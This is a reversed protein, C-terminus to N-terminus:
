RRGSIQVRLVANAVLLSQPDKLVGRLETDSAVDAEVVGIWGNRDRRKVAYLAADAADVVAQWSLAETMRPNPPFAAFGVSCTKVVHTQDDLVFPKNAVAVRLREAREHAQRRDMGRAVILFEEGGWRVLHDTERFATRLREAIQQLLADGAAHGHEDNVQKFHDIDLLFFILDSESAGILGERQLDHQRRLAISVDADIVQLLFRRNRLGTLPDTLSTEELAASQAKLEQTLEELQATREAVKRQLAAENARLHSTRWQVAAWTMLLLLAGGVIVILGRAAPTQRWAPKVVLPVSLEDAAWIGSRNTARVRLRYEGPELNSYAAVRWDASTPVWDPDFGELRYAYRIRDPETYDLAAFEIHVTRDAPTLSIGDLVREAPRPEGNIRLESVVLPPSYTSVDFLEPEIVLLGKSTGFVMRGDATQARAGFWGTGVLAGDAETLEHLSDAAPDYVNLHTWIRGRADALLSAGFPRTRFGHRVSISEFRADRGNWSIMRHLGAVATDLWLTGARDWLLGIVIPNVLGQAVGALVPQLGNSGAAVRYLGQAAGVWLAADDPAIGLSHVEGVLVQGGALTVPEPLAAGASLGYLGDSTGIWLRDDPGALLRTVLGPPKPVSRLLRRDLGYRLLAQDTAVWGGTPGPSEAPVVSMAMVSAKAPLAVAGRVSLDADLVALGSTHSAAWIEGNSLAMVSRVDADALPSSAELDPGRLLVSRNGPNYRQLGLGFGGVWVWGARDTILQTVHHGALGDPRRPDHRLERLRRGDDLAHVDVGTTRGVWVEGGPTELLATVPSSRGNLLRQVSGTSPEVRHLDGNASGVWIRGDSTQRLAQVSAADGAGGPESSPGNLHIVDFRTSGKARRSLGAWSGVWLTGDRDVLLAQVRNDPLSGARAPDHRFGMFQGTKPDFRQLGGLSGSWIAGDHDEALALIAPKLGAAAAAPASAQAADSVPWAHMQVRDRVPDYSALGNNETGIWLRGDSGGLLARIWGLNREAPDPHELEQPRFRYGDYRVLGNGTAIWLFGARDEAMAPVVARPIAGVGVSEFRPQALSEPLPRWTKAPPKTSAVVAPKAHTAAKEAPGNIADHGALGMSGVLGFGVTVAAGLWVLAQGARRPGSALWGPRM